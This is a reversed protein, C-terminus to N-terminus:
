RVAATDGLDSRERRKRSIYTRLRDMERTKFGKSFDPGGEHELVTQRIEEETAKAQPLIVFLVTKDSTMENLRKLQAEPREEKGFCVLIIWAQELARRGTPSTGLGEDLRIRLDDSSLLKILEAAGTRDESMCSIFIDCPPGSSGIDDPAIREQSILFDVSARRLAENSLWQVGPQSQLIYALDPDALVQAAVKGQPTDRGAIDALQEASLSEWTIVEDAVTQRQYILDLVDPWRQQLCRSVAFYSTPVEAASSSKDSIATDILVNNIFRVMARPNGGLATGILPLIPGLQDVVAQEQSALLTKCFEDMRDVSPPIHFPLQVIKDLYLGGKFNTIGFEKVYRHQLYGEIVRRAVGIVFIFGPQSLVLKISELLRIAQDPFCRDLDDIIIVIKLENSIDISDLAHFAGYYLSRDIIPDPTLREDRDIMDKAVFAAEVEAFGPMKVTAKASFGYAIARLSRIMTRASAGVKNLLSKRSELEQVITGVLPIIPHEEKEYRWANFWVTVVSPDGSLKQEVLHMLSTKGSGWEGFVGITFPGRTARAVEALVEAYAAFGLGDVSRTASEGIAHDAILNLKM